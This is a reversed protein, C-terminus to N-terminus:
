PHILFQMQTFSYKWLLSTKTQSTNTRTEDQGKTANTKQIM